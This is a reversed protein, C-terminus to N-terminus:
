RQSTAQVGAAAVASVHCPTRSKITQIGRPVPLLRPGACSLDWSSSSCQTSNDTQAQWHLGAWFTGLQFMSINITANLPIGLHQASRKCIHWIPSSLTREVALAVPVWVQQLGNSTADTKQIKAGNVEVGDAERKSM